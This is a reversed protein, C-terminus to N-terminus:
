LRRKNPPPFEAFSGIRTPPKLCKKNEMTYPIIRGMSSSMHKLITLVVLWNHNIIPVTPNSAPRNEWLGHCVWPFNWKGWPFFSCSFCTQYKKSLRPSILHQITGISEVTHPEVGLMGDSEMMLEMWTAPIGIHQAEYIFHM